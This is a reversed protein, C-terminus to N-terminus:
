CAVQDITSRLMTAITSAARWLIRICMCINEPWCCDCCPSIATSSLWVLPIMFTLTKYIQNFNLNNSSQHVINFFIFILNYNKKHLPAIHCIIKLFRFHYIIYM